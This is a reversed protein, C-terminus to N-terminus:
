SVFNPKIHESLKLTQERDHEFNYPETSVATMPSIFSTLMVVAIIWRKMGPSFVSYVPGSPTRTLVEPDTDPTDPEGDESTNTAPEEDASSALDTQSQPEHAVLKAAPPRQGAVASADDVTPIPPPSSSM